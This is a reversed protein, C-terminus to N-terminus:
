VKHQKSNKLEALIIDITKVDNMLDRHSGLGVGNNRAIYEKAIIGKPLPPQSASIYSVTGDTKVFKRPSFIRIRKKNWELWCSKKSNWLFYDPKLHKDGVLVGVKPYSEVDIELGIATSRMREQFRKGLRLCIDVHEEMETSIDENLSWPGLKYSKWDDLSYMDIDIIQKKGKKISESDVFQFLQDGDDDRLIPDNGIGMPSAAAYMSPFTHCVRGGLYRKNLGVKM